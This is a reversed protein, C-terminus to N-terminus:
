DNVKREILEAVYAQQGGQRVIKNAIVSKSNKFQDPDPLHM